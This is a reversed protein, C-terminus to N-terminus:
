NPSPMEIHDIVLTTIHVKTHVLRLGLPELDWRQTPLHYDESEEATPHIPMNDRVTFNYDGDLGTKDEVKFTSLQSLYRALDSVPERQFRLAAVKESLFVVGESSEPPPGMADGPREKETPQLGKKIGAPAVILAFGDAEIPVTHLKLKCREVLLQQLACALMPSDLDRDRHASTERQWEAADEPSVKALLTFYKHSMWDPANILHKQGGRWEPDYALRILFGLGGGRFLFGDPLVKLDFSEDIRSPRMSAVEFSILKGQSRLATCDVATQARAPKGLLACLVTLITLAYLCDCRAYFRQQM